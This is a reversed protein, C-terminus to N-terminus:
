VGLAYAIADLAAADAQNDVGITLLRRNPDFALNFFPCCAREIALTETVLSSDAAPSLQLTLAGSSRGVALVTKGIAAYRDRQAQLAERDLSCSALTTSAAPEPTFIPLEDSSM